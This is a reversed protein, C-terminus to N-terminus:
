LKLDMVELVTSPGNKKKTESTTNAEWFLDWVDLLAVPPRQRDLDWWFLLLLLLVKMSKM